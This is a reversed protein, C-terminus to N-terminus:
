GNDSRRTSSRPTKACGIPSVKASSAPDGSAEEFARHRTLKEPHELKKTAATIRSEVLRDTLRHLAAVSAFRRAGPEEAASLKDLLSLAESEHEVTWPQNLLQNFLQNAYDSRRNEPGTQWQLAPVRAVGVIRAATVLRQDLASGLTHKVDDKTEKNWRKRLAAPMKQWAAPTLDDYEIWGVVRQAQEAPLKDIEKVLIDALRKRVRPAEESRRFQYNSM